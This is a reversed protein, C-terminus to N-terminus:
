RQRLSDRLADLVGVVSSFGAEAANAYQLGLPASDRLTNNTCSTKFLDWGQRLLGLSLNVQDAAQKLQPVSQALSEDLPPYDGPIAPTPSTCGDTVGATQADTWYAKLLTSPGRLANVNQLIAEIGIIHNNITAPAVTATPTPTSTESPTVSPTETFPLPTPASRIATEVANIQDDIGGL